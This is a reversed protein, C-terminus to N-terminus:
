KWLKNSSDLYDVQITVSYTAITPEVSTDVDQLVPNESLSKISDIVCNDGFNPYNCLEEQEKVWDIVKQFEAMESLNEDQFNGTKVIANYSITKYTLLIFRYSKSISGDIYKTNLAEDNAITVFQNNDQKTKGFNFFLPSNKIDPCTLLYDIMAQNKDVM